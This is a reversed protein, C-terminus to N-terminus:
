EKTSTRSNLTLQPTSPPLAPMESQPFLLSMNDGQRRGTLVVDILQQVGNIGVLAEKVNHTTGLPHWSPGGPSNSTSAPNIPHMQPLSRHLGHRPRIRM